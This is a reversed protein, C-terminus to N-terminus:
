SRVMGECSRWDWPPPTWLVPDEDLNAILYETPCDLAVTRFPEGHDDIIWTREEGDVIGTMELRWQCDCTEARAWISLSVTEGKALTIVKHDFYPSRLPFPYDKSITRAIPDSEDLNLGLGVIPGAGASLYSALTGRQPQGRSEVIARIGTIAVPKESAGQITLRLRTAGVDAGGRSLLSQHIAGGGGAPVTTRVALGQPMFMGFGSSSYAAGDYAVAVHIPDVLPNRNTLFAVVGGVLAGVVAIVVARRIWPERKEAM